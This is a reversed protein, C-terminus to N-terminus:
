AIVELNALPIVVSVGSELRVEAALTRLGGPFVHAGKLSTLTGIEGPHPARLVRVQQDPAFTVSDQPLSLDGSGPLPIVIEPRTGGLRNWVDANLAVERRDNTSLLKYAVPNM